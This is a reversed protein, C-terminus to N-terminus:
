STAAAEAASSFDYRNGDYGGYVIAHGNVPDTFLMPGTVAKPSTAPNAASWTSTAGNWIWTDGLYAGNFGGFLGVTQTVNDFAMSAAARAPPAL